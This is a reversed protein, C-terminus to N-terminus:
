ATLRSWERGGKGLGLLSQNIPGARNLVDNRKERQIPSPMRQEALDVSGFLVQGLVLIPRSARMELTGCSDSPPFPPSNIGGANACNPEKTPQIHVQPHDVSEM